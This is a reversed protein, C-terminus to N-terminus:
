QKEENGNSQNGANDEVVLRELEIALSEPVDCRLARGLKNAKIALALCKRSGCLYAGRGPMKGTPDVRVQGDTGRVIRLLKKKESSVRCSVCTRVPTKRLEAMMQLCLM